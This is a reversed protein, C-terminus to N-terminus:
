CVRQPVQSTLEGLLGEDRLKQEFCGENSSGYKGFFLQFGTALRGAKVAPRTEEPHWSRSTEPRSRRRRSSPSRAGSAGRPDIWLASLPHPKQKLRPVPLRRELSVLPFRSGAGSKSVQFTIDRVQSFLSDIHKQARQFKQLSGVAGRDGKVLVGYSEATPSIGRLVAAM